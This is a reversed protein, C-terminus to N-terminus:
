SDTPTQDHLTTVWSEQLLFNGLTNNSERMEKPVANIQWAKAQM